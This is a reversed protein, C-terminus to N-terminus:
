PSPMVANAPRVDVKARNPRRGSAAQVFGSTTSTPLIDRAYLGSVAHDHFVARTRRRRSSCFRCPEAAVHIIHFALRTHALIHGDSVVAEIFILDRCTDAQRVSRQRDRQRGDERPFEARRSAHHHFPGNPRIAALSALELTRSKNPNGSKRRIVACRALNATASLEATCSLELRCASRRPPSEISTGFPTSLTMTLEGGSSYSANLIM